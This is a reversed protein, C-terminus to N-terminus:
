LIEAMRVHGFVTGPALKWRRRCSSVRRWICSVLISPQHRKPGHRHDCNAKHIQVNNSGDIRSALRRNLTIM